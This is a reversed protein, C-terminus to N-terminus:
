IIELMEGMERMEEVEGMEVKIGMVGVSGRERERKFKIKQQFYDILFFFFTNLFYKYSCVFNLHKKAECRGGAEGKGEKVSDGRTAAAALSFIAARSHLASSTSFNLSSPFFFVFECVCLCVCM